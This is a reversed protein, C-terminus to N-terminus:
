ATHSEKVDAGDRADLNQRQGLLSTASLMSERTMNMTQCRASNKEIKVLKSLGYGPKNQILNSNQACKRLM